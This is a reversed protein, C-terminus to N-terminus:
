QKTGTRFSEPVFYLHDQNEVTLHCGICYDVRESGRGNTEGLLTGDPQIQTYKWDGSVYNFGQPMKEMIVLPGLVIERSETVTFSDKAIISGVPMKGAQEFRGYAQATANAYNNLYHNGHTVSLYPATNYRTWSQYEDAISDDSLRYGKQLAERVVDYIQAAEDPELEAALRLRFHRRPADVTGSIESMEVDGATSEEVQHESALASLAVSLGVFLVSLTSNKKTM